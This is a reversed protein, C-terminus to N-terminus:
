LEAELNTILASVVNMLHTDLQNMNKKLALWTPGHPGIQVEM